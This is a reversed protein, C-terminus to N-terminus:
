EEKAIRAIAGAAEAHVKDFKQKGSEYLIGVLNIVADSGQLAKRISDENRINAQVPTVQGVDGATKLYLADEPERIAVRVRLGKAALKRVVYRGVFGAGGFVTVVNLAM